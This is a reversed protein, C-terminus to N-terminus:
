QLDFARDPPVQSYYFAGLRLRSAHGDAWCIPTTELAVLDPRGFCDSDPLSPPLLLKGDDGCWSTSKSSRAATLIVTGAPDDIDSASVAMHSDANSFDLMFNTLYSFNYGWHSSSKGSGDIRSVRSGPCFWVDKNKIYPDVLEFWMVFKTNSTAYAALPYEDDFDMLYLQVGKGMQNINSLGATSQAASKAQAFVPFLLAALTAIIALVVLLEVLTFAKM